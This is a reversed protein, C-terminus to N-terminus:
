SNETMTYIQIKNQTNRYIVEIMKRLINLDMNKISHFAITEQKDLIDRFKILKNWLDSELNKIKIIGIRKTITKTETSKTKKTTQEIKKLTSFNYCLFISIGYNKISILILLYVDGKSKAGEM